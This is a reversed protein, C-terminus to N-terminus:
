ASVTATALSQRIRPVYTPVITHDYSIQREKLYSYACRDAQDSTIQLDLSGANDCVFKMHNTLMHLQGIIQLLSPANMFMISKSTANFQKSVINVATREEHSDGFSIIERKMDAGSDRAPPPSSSSSATTNDETDM